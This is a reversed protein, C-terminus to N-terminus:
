PNKEPIFQISVKLPADTKCGSKGNRMNLFVRPNSGQKIEVLSGNRVLGNDAKIVVNGRTLDAEKSFLDRVRDNIIAIGQFAKGDSCTGWYTDKDPLIRVLFYRTPSSDFKKGDLEVGEISSLAIDETIAKNAFGKTDWFGKEVSDWERYAIFALALIGLFLLSTRSRKWFLFLALFLIGLGIFPILHAPVFQLAPVVLTICVFLILILFISKKYKWIWKLPRLVKELDTM